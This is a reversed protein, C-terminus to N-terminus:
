RGPDRGAPEPGDEAPREAPEGDAARARLGALVLDFVATWAADDLGAV